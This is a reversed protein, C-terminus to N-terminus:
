SLLRPIFFFASKKEVASSEQGMPSHLHVRLKLSCTSLDNAGPSVSGIPKNQKNTKFRSRNM